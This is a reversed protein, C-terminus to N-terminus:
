LLYAQTKALVTQIKPPPSGNTFCRQNGPYGACDHFDALFGPLLQSDTPFLHEFDFQTQTSVFDEKLQYHESENHCCSGTEADCCKKAAKDISLSVLESGCYHRSITFGTTATLLLFSVFINVLKKMM